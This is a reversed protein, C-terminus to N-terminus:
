KVKPVRIENVIGYLKMVVLMDILRDRYKRDSVEGTLKIEEGSFEARVAFTAQPDTVVAKRFAEVYDGVKAAEYKGDPAVKELLAKMREQYAPNLAIATYSKPDRPKAARDKELKERLAILAAKHTTWYKVAGKAIAAAETKPYDPKMSLDDFERNTM